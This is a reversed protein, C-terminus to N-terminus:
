KKALYPYHFEFIKNLVEFFNVQNNKLFEKKVGFNSLSKTCRTKYDDKIGLDILLKLLEKKQCKFVYSLMFLNRNRLWYLFKHIYVKNKSYNISHEHNWIGVHDALEALESWYLQLRERLSRIQNYKPDLKHELSIKYENSLEDSIPIGSM